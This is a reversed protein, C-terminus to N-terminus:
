IIGKMVMMLGPIFDFISLIKSNLLFIALPPISVGCSSAMYVLLWIGSSSLLVNSHRKEKLLVLRNGGGSGLLPTVVKSLPVPVIGFIGFAGIDGIVGLVWLEGFIVGALPHSPSELKSDPNSLLELSSDFTPLLM